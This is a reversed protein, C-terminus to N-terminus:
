NNERWTNKCDFCTSYVSMAEDSARDNKSHSITRYSKCRPCKMLGKKIEFPNILYEEHEKKLDQEKKFGEHNFGLSNTKLLVLVSKLPIKQQILFCLQYVYIKYLTLDGDTLEFVYKEFLVINKKNKLLTSLVTISRKREEEM